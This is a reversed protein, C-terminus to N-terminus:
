LTPSAMPNINVSVPSWFFLSECHSFHNVLKQVASYGGIDSHSDPVINFLLTKLRWDTWRSICRSNATTEPSPSGVGFLSPTTSLVVVALIPFGSWIKELLRDTGLQMLIEMLGLIHVCWNTPNELCKLWQDLSLWHRVRFVQPSFFTSNSIIGQSLVEAFM